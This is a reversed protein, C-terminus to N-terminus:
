PRSQKEVKKRADKIILDMLPYTLRGLIGSLWFFLSAEFGPTIIYDGRQVGKLISKAVNQPSMLSATKSLEQTIEPKYPMEGALQPTDTDPPFVVSVQIGLPKLEARLVDSFGRLAFKSAGYAAYGYTGLFGAISSVNVIIGSKREVMFPVIAHSVHVAGFFNVDMMQRFVAPTQHIFEGPMSVGANNVLIDPTGARRAYDQLATVTQEERSVDVPLLDVRVPQDVGSLIENRAKELRAPDRAVLCLNAGSAGLMRALELGIGSSGGTILALKGNFDM